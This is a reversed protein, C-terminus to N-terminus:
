IKNQMMKSELQSKHIFVNKEEEPLIEWGARVNSTHDASSTGPEIPISKRYLQYATRARKKIANKPPHLANYKKMEENYIELKKSIIKKYEEKIKPDANKWKERKTELTDGTCHDSVFAIYSSCPKVPKDKPRTKKTFIDMMIDTIQELPINFDKHIKNACKKIRMSTKRPVSQM